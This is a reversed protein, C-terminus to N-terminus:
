CRGVQVNAEDLSDLTSTAADVCFVVAGHKLLARAVALRQKEVQAIQVQGVNTKYDDSRSLIYDLVGAKRAATEIAQLDEVSKDDQSVGGYGINYQITDNFLACDQPVIAVAGRLDKSKISRIDYGDLTIEGGHVDYFRYLLRMITSKGCGSPGVIAVREGPEIVFNVNKLVYRPKPVYGKEYSFSVNKFEIRGQKFRAVAPAMPETVREGKRMLNSMDEADKCGQRVMRCWTSLSTLQPYIHLLFALIMVWDGLEIDVDGLDYCGWILLACFGIAMLLQQIFVIGVVSGAVHLTENRYLHLAEVYRNIEHEEANFYKVSEFYNLADQAKQTFDHECKGKASLM